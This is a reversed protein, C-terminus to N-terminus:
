ESRAGASRTQRYLAEALSARMLISNLVIGGGPLCPAFEPAMARLANMEEGTGPRTQLFRHTTGANARVYCAAMRDGAAGGDRPTANTWQLRPERGAPAAAAAPAANAPEPPSGTRYLAEALAGAFFGGTMRARPVNLCSSTDHLMLRDYLGQRAKSGPAALVYAEATRRNQTVICAALFHLENLAVVQQRTPRPVERQVGYQALAPAPAPVAILTAAAIAAALLRPRRM